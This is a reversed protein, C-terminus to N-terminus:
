GSSFPRAAPASSNTTSGNGATAPGGSPPAFAIRFAQQQPMPRSPVSASNTQAHEMAERTTVVPIRGSEIIRLFMRLEAYCHAFLDDDMEAMLEAIDKGVNFAALFKGYQSPQERRAPPSPQPQAQHQPRTPAVSTSTTRAPPAPAASPKKRLSALLNHVDRMVVEKDTHERVYELIKRPQVNAKMLARVTRLIDPDDVKRIMPHRRYLGGSLEHNHQAIHSTVYVFYQGTAHDKRLLLTMINSVRAPCNIARSPKRTRLGAARPRPQGHHTCVVGKSYIGM